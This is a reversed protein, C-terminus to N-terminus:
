HAAKKMEGILQEFAAIKQRKEDADWDKPSLDSLKYPKTTYTQPYTFTINMEEGDIFLRFGRIDRIHYPGAVGLDHFIKGFFVLDVQQRGVDLPYSKDSYAIPTKEDQSVCNGQFSYLGKEYIQVDLTVALSGQKISDSVGVIEAVTRPAYTFERVVLRRGKGSEVIAQLFVQQATKMAPVDSPVFTNKYVYGGADAYDLKALRGGSTSMVWAESITAPVRKSSDGTKWVEIWSTIADGYTVHARDAAFHYVTEEGPTEDMPLESVVPKNWDLLVKTGEDLPRSWWPYVAVKKYAELNMQLREVTPAALIPQPKDVPPRQPYDAHQPELQTLGPKPPEPSKRTSWLWLFIGLAALVALAGYLRRRSM